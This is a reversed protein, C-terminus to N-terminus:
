NKMTKLPSGLGELTKDFLSTTDEKVVLKDGPYLAYDTDPTVAQESYDFEATMRLPRGAGRVGREIYIEQRRFYNLMGTQELAQQITLPEDLPMPYSDVRGLAPMVEMTFAPAGPAPPKPHYPGFVHLVDFQRPHFSSCGSAALLLMAALSMLTITHPTRRGSM